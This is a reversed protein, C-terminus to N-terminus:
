FRLDVLKCPMDGTMTRYVTSGGLVAHFLKGSMRDITIRSRYGEANEPDYDLILRDSETSYSWRGGNIWAYEERLKIMYEVKQRDSVRTAECKLITDAAFAMSAAIVGFVSVILAWWM